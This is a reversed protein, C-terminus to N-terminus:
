KLPLEIIFTTGLGPGESEAWIRGKHKSVIQKVISLGLGTGRLSERSADIRYFREFIRSLHEKAIGPGNDKIAVCGNGDKEFSSINITVNDGAYKCANDCLNLIVQEILRFDGKLYELKLEAEFKIKKEPYSALINGEVGEVVDPLPFEESRLYNRSEIVSLNLLDNFLSIMRETNTVIKELFPHLSSDVKGSQTQLIQTFGKISTLPTRIEHSVNAVFDVRMQENLKFETVDYFVGLAGNITGNSSMLPTITLDFFRNPNNSQPFSMAKLSQPGGNNLVSRFANLVEDDFLHWVKKNIEQGDRKTMFDNGFKSNYFLISEYRDVAIIDDNISELIATNKENEIQVELIQKQLRLDAKNLAEEIAGWEDREYLLELSKNFPIDDKFKEVKSLIIGLPKTSRFFLFIFVFYSVLAFPVIRLFLVRDFRDMNDRLSSVPIVKRIILDQGLRMSAFVAQTGFISSKRLRSAFKGKHSAAIEALDEIKKGENSRDISDCVITGDRKALTYHVDRLPPLSQCWKEWDVDARLLTHKMLRLDEEIQVTMQSVLGSRYSSRYLFLILFLTPLFVVLTLRAIRYFFFWPYATRSSM